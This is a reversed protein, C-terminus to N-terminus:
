DIFIFVVKNQNGEFLTYVSEGLFNYIKLSVHCSKQLEYKIHTTSNFPNPFNQYLIHSQIVAMNSHRTVHTVEGFKNTKLLIVNQDLSNWYSGTLAYGGDNTQIISSCVYGEFLNKRWEINGAQDIKFILLKWLNASTGGLIYGGDNTPYISYAIDCLGPESYNKQWIIEGESDTKILLGKRNYTSDESVVSVLYGRDDTELIRNDWWCIRENYEKFWLSDGVSNSKFLFLKNTLYELEVSGTIIYNGDSTVDMSIKGLTGKITYVKEFLKEGHENIKVLTIHTISDYDTKALNGTLWMESCAFTFNGDNTQEIGFTYYPYSKGYSKKWLTDGFTNTRMVFLHGGRYNGIVLYSGDSLQINSEASEGRTQDRYCNTWESQGLGNSKILISYEDYDDTNNYKGGCILYGGDSTSIVCNGFESYISDGFSTYFTNQAHLNITFIFLSFFFIHKIILTKM